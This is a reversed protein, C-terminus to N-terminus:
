LGWLVSQTLLKPPLSTGLDPTFGDSEGNCPPNMAIKRTEWFAKCSTTFQSSFFLCRSRVPVLRGMSRDPFVCLCACDKFPCHVLVSVHFISMEGATTGAYTTQPRETLDQERPSRLLRPGAPCSPVDWRLAHHLGNRPWVNHLSLILAQVWPKQSLNHHGKWM